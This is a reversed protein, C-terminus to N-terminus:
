PGTQELLSDRSIQHVGTLLRHPRRSVQDIFYEFKASVVRMTKLTQRVDPGVDGTLDSINRTLTDAHNILQRTDAMLVTLSDHIGAFNSDANALTTTARALLPELRDLAARASALTQRIEPATRHVEDETARATRNLSGLLTRTDSLIGSVQTRLTDAVEKVVDTWGQTLSGKITDGPQLAAQIQNVPVILSISASGILGTTTIEARTGLPLRIPLGNAYRERLRLSVVFMPPG